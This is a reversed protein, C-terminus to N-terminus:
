GNQLMIQWNEGRQNVVNTVRSHAVSACQAACERSILPGAVVESSTMRKSGGQVRCPPFDRGRLEKNTLTRCHKICGRWSRRSAALALNTSSGSHGNTEEARGPCSPSPM